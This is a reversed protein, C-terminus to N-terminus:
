AGVTCALVGHAGIAGGDRADVQTASCAAAISVHSAIHATCTDLAVVASQHEVGVAAVLVRQVVAVQLHLTQLSTFSEGFGIGVGDGVLIAVCGRRRQGDGDM